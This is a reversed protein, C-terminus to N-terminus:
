RSPLNHSDKFATVMADMDRHEPHKKDLEVVVGRYGYMDKKSDSSSELDLIELIGLYEGRRFAQLIMSDSEVLPEKLLQRFGGSTIVANIGSVAQCLKKNEEVGLNSLCIILDTQGQLDKVIQAATDLPPHVTILRDREAAKPDLLGFIGVRLNNIVKITYPEFIRRNTIKEFLNGSVFTFRAQDQLDRLFEHGMTLDYEGVNVVDYGMKNYAQVLFTATDKWLSRSAM